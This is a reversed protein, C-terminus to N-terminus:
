EDGGGETAQTLAAAFSDYIGCLQRIEMAMGNADYRHTETAKYVAGHFEGFRAAAENIRGETSSQGAAYATAIHNYSGAM